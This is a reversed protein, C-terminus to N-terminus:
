PWLVNGFITQPQASNFLIGMALSSFKIGMVTLGKLVINGTGILNVRRNSGSGCSQDLGGVSFLAAGISSYDLERTHCLRIAQVAM